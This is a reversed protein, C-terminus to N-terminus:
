RRRGRTGAAARTLTVEFVNALRGAISDYSFHKIVRENRQLKVTGSARLEKTWALIQDKVATETRCYRGAGTRHLLSDIYDDGHGGTALIPRGTSLYEYLKTSAVGKEEPDEWNLLLLIGAQGQARHSEEISVVGHCHIFGLGGGTAGGCLRAVQESSSGYLDLAIAGADLARDRILDNISNVVKFIDQHKSYIQGTYVIRVV